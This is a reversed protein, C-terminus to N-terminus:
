FQLNMGVQFNRTPAPNFYRGGFANIDNGLSYSENLINDIHLHIKFSIKSLQFTYSVRCQVLHYANSYISNANDLPTKAHFRHTMVIELPQYVNLFLNQTWSIPPVGPLQNGSLNTKEHNFKQFFFPSWTLQSQWTMHSLLNIKGSTELGNQQIIGANSFYESGDEHINRVIGKKLRFSFATIDASWANGPAEFRIGVEKNWGKEAHLDTNIQQNSPRIEALTPPSFGKSIVARVAIQPHLLYSLGLRPMWESPIIIERDYHEPTPFINQFHYNQINRSVSAEAVTKKGINFRIRSFYTTYSTKFHDSGQIAGINRAIHDYNTIRYDGKQWELGTQFQWNLKKLPESPTQYSIFTRLGVNNEYRKEYNTIFPNKFDTYSGFVTFNHQLHRIPNWEHTLSGLITKNMIGALQEDAGKITGSKPRAVRPDELAQAQTLGGPTRYDLNGYVLMAKVYSQPKYTWNHETQFYQKKLNSNKRYGDSKQFSHHFSFGYKRSKQVSLNLQEHILNYSGMQINLSNPSSPHITKFILVGGSNAGFVSGDPGKLIEIHSLAAPDLLNLYTNGSADTLPTENLYVKVNRIGFPSRLLSGRVSLRYSGPSREEFQVGAVSNLAPLLTSPGLKELTTAHIVHASGTYSLLAQERFYGKVNIEHLEIKSNIHKLSDMGKLNVTSGILLLIILHIRM